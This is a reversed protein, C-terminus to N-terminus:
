RGSMACLPAKGLAEQPWCRRIPMKIGLSAMWDAQYKADSDSAGM